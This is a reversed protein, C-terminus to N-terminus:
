WFTSGPEEWDSQHSVRTLELYLFAKWFPIVYCLTWFLFKPFFCCFCVWLKSNLTLRLSHSRQCKERAATLHSWYNRDWPEATQLVTHSPIAIFARALIATFLLSSNEKKLNNTMMIGQSTWCVIPGGHCCARCLLLCGVRPLYFAWPLTKKEPSHGHFYLKLSAEASSFPTLRGPQSAADTQQASLFSDSCLCSPHHHDPLPSRSLSTLAHLALFRYHIWPPPLLAISNLLLLSYCSPPQGTQSCRAPPVPTHEGWKGQRLAM